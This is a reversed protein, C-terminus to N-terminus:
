ASAPSSRGVNDDSRTFRPIQPTAQEACGLHFFEEIVGGGVGLLDELGQTLEDLNFRAARLLVGDILQAQEHGAPQIGDAGSYVNDLLFRNAIM